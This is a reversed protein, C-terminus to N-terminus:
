FKRSLYFVSVGPIVLTGAMQWPKKQRHTSIPPLVYRSINLTWDEDKIEEVAVVRARDKVDEFAQVWGLITAAHEPELFNQARAKRFLSSADVVIVRRLVGVQPAALGMGPAAYMTELMDDILTRIEADVSQVPACIKKLAPDPAKIIHLIAM